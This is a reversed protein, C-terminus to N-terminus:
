GSSPPKLSGQFTQTKAMNSPM